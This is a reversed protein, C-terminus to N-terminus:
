AQHLMEHAVEQEPKGEKVAGPHFVRAVVAPYKGPMSHETRPHKLADAINTGPKEPPKDEGARGMWPPLIAAGLGAIASMRFFRRRAPDHATSNSKSKM